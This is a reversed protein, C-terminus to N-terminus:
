VKKCFNFRRTQNSMRDFADSFGGSTRIMDEGQAAVTTIKKNRHALVENIIQAVCLEGNTDGIRKIAGPINQNQWTAINKLEVCLDERIVIPADPLSPERKWVAVRNPM